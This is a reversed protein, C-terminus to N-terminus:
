EENVRAERKSSAAQQQMRLLFPPPTSGAEWPFPVGKSASASNALNRGYVVCIGKDGSEGYNFAADPPEPWETLQAHIQKAVQLVAFIDDM